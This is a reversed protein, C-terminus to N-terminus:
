QNNLEIITDIRKLMLKVNTDFNNFILRNALYNGRFINNKSHTVLNDTNVPRPGVKDKPDFQFDEKDAQLDPANNFTWIGNKYTLPLDLREQNREVMDLTSDDIIDLEGTMQHNNYFLGRDFTIKANAYRGEKWRFAETGLVSGHYTFSDGSEKDNVAYEVSFPHIKGYFSGFSGSVNHLWMGCKEFSYMDFRNWAYLFPTYNHFSVWSKTPIHYSLTFSKNEFYKPDHISVMKGGKTFTINDESLQIDNYIPKYDVKTFLLRKYRHDVGFSYGIGGPLKLDVLKFCPFAKLLELDMNEDMFGRVGEDSIPEPLGGGNFRYWTRAERDPFMYGYASVEAANPDLLGAYGEVVGGYIPRAAGFLEGTGLLTTDSDINFSGGGLLAIIMDTTHAYISNGIVFMKSIKGMDAPIELNNNPKFNRWSDVHSELNQRNSYVIKNTYDLPCVCTDYPDSMGFGVEFQCPLSHTNDYLWFNNEFQRLRSEDFSYSGDVNKRDPRINKLGIFEEIMRNDSDSKVWYVMWFVGVLVLILGFLMGIVAGITQMGYTGGGAAQAGVNFHGIGEWIMWIGLGFTFVFNYVGQVLLKWKANEKWESYWRNIFGKLWPTEEPISSDIKLGKLSSSDDSYYVEGVDVNNLQRFGMNVDAPFYSTVLTKLNQPVYNDGFNVDVDLGTRTTYVDRPFPPPIRGETVEGPEAVDTGGVTPLITDNIFRLGGFVRIFDGKDQNKPIYGGNRVGLVRFLYSFLKGFVVEFWGGGSDIGGELVFRSIMRNTKDSILGTRKYTMAGVFSDGVLGSVETSGSRGDLGLPIYAQSILSGYQRPLRKIFTMLHARVDHIPLSETYIDGTFSRDSANDGDNTAGGYLGAMDGDGEAFQELEGDLEIYVGSERHLNCLPYTFKDAKSVIKDSPAVSMANVERVIPEGPSVYHNINLAQRTGKQHVRDQTRSEPKEGKAFMGHRFGKGQMELEILCHTANLAPRRMHFDPSHIFYAGVDIPIGGRFTSEGAPEISRDFREFSNGAHKAFAHPEGSMDGLFCSHGLGTGIVTKNAETREVYTITFPNHPCIPKPPNAPPQINTFKPGIMMAYTDKFESNAQDYRSPVGSSFSIIHPEKAVSPVKHLRVREGALDGYVFECECNLTMPYTEDLLWSGFKGEVYLKPKIGLVTCGDEAFEFEFGLDTTDKVPGTKTYAANVEYSQGANLYVWEGDRCGYCVEGICTTQGELECKSGQKVGINPKVTVTKAKFQEKFNTFKEKIYKIGREPFRGTVSIADSVYAKDIYALVDDAVLGEIGTGGGGVTGENGGTDPEDYNRAECACLLYELTIAGIVDDDLDWVGRGPIPVVDPIIDGDNAIFVVERGAIQELKECLCDLAEGMEFDAYDLGDREESLVDGITPEENPGLDVATTEDALPEDPTYDTSDNVEFDKEYTNPDFEIFTQTRESTDRYPDCPTPGGPLGPIPFDASRTGDVYNWHIAPQYNENPRLSKFREAYQIPVLYGQYFSEIQNAQRQYDLNSIPRLNYLILRNDYQILNRGRIYRNTRTTIDSLQLTVERGTKGAYVYNLTDSDNSASVTAFQEIVTFNDVTSIVALNILHYDRNSMGSVTLNIAQNSREGPKHDGDSISIPVSIKSWNSDNGETDVAQAAFSYIGNPLGGGNEILETSPTAVCVPKILPIDEFKCCPDDLNLRKYIDGSSWYLYLHSCPGHVKVECDIWQDMCIGLEPAIETTTVKSYSKTKEKILGIEGGDPTDLFVVYIDREEVYIMGRIQGPLDVFLENSAENSIGYGSEQDSDIVANWAEIYYNSNQLSLLSDLWMRQFQNVVRKERSVRTDM